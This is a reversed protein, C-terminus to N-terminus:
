TPPRTPCACSTTGNSWSACCAPRTSCRRRGTSSRAAPASVPGGRHAAHARRRLIVPVRDRSRTSSRTSAHERHRRQRAGDGGAAPRDDPLRRAGDLGRPERAAGGDAAAGRGNIERGRSAGRHDAPLRHGPNCFFYDVGHDALGRLFADAAIPAREAREARQATPNPSM